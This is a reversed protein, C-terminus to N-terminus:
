YRRKRGKKRKNKKKKDVVPCNEWDTPRDKSKKIGTLTGGKKKEEVLLV